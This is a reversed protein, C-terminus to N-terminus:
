SKKRSWERIIKKADVWNVSDTKEANKISRVFEATEDKVNKDAIIKIDSLTKLYNVLAKNKPTNKIEVLM